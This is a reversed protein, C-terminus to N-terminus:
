TSVEQSNVVSLAGIECDPGGIGLLDKDDAVKVTPVFGSMRQRRSALRSDPLTKNRPYFGTYQVFEVDMGAILQVFGILGVGKAIIKFRRGTGSGDDPVQIVGPAVLFPQGFPIGPIGQVGRHGDILNM